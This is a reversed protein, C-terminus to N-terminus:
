NGPAHYSPYYIYGGLPVDDTGVFILEDVTKVLTFSAPAYPTALLEGGAYLGLTVSVEVSDNDSFDLKDLYLYAAFVQVQDIVTSHTINQKESDYVPMLVTYETPFRPSNDPRPGECRYTQEGISALVKTNDCEPYLQKIGQAEGYFGMMLTIYIENENLVNMGGYCLATYMGERVFSGKENKYIGFSDHESVAFYVGSTKGWVSVFGNPLSPPVCPIEEHNDGNNEQDQQAPKCGVISFVSIVLLLSIIKSLLRKM